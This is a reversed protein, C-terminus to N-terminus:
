ALLALYSAHTRSKSGRCREIVKGAGDEPFVLALEDGNRFLRVVFGERAQGGLAGDTGLDAFVKMEDLIRTCDANM